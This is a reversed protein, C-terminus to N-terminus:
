ATTRASAQRGSTPATAATACATTSWPPSSRPLSTGKTPVTSSATQVRPPAQSTPATPATATTTTSRQSRCKPRATEASSAATSAPTPPGSPRDSAVFRRRRRPRCRTSPGWCRRRPRWSRRWWTVRLRLPTLVRVKATHLPSKSMSLMAAGDVKSCAGPVKCADASSSGQETSAGQEPRVVRSVVHAHTERPSSGRNTSPRPRSRNSASATGEHPGAAPLSPSM